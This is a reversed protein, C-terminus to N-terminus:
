IVTEAAAPQDDDPSFWRGLAPQVNLARLTSATAVLTRLQEADGIETVAAQGFRYMGLEDFAQGNAAYIELMQPSFPFRDGRVNGFVASHTVTVVADSEPYPLPKILVGNVVSFIATTAGIGLALILVATAAFGPQKAFARLAYRLDQRLDTFLRGTSAGATVTPPAHAQKLAAIRQALVNGARFQALALRTAEDPSAGASIAERYREALHQSIEDVIDAEREPKLRLHALRARVESHWDHM